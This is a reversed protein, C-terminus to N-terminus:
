ENDEGANRSIANVQPMAKRGSLTWVARVVAVAGMFSKRRGIEVRRDSM